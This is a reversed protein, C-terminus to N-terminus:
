NMLTYIQYLHNIENSSLIFQSHSGSYMVDTATPSHGKYGLAHGLEHVVTKKTENETRPSTDEPRYIIYVNAYVMEKILKINEQYVAYGRESPLNTCLGTWSDPWITKTMDLYDDPTLGYVKIDANDKDETSFAINLVSSWQTKASNVGSEFYFSSSQERKEVYLTPPSSWYAVTDENSNWYQLVGLYNSVGNYIEWEDNYSADDTYTTQVTLNVGDGDTTTPTALVSYRWTSAKCILRYNGTSTEVIKWRSYDTVTDYQRVESVNSSNAGLYKGSNVNKIKFYGNGDLEFIWKAQEGTHFSWQQVIGGNAESASEVEMYKGTAVNQVFTTDGVIDPIVTYTTSQTHQVTSSSGLRTQIEMEYDGCKHATITALYNNAQWDATAVSSYPSKIALYPTNANIVTSWTKLWITGTNGKVLGDGMGATRYIHYGYKENGTYKTFRWKGRTGAATQTMLTLQAAEANTDGSATSNPAAIVESSGYPKITCLSGAMVITYTRGLANADDTNIFGTIMEDENIDTDPCISLRNNTMARIIYRNTEGIRTVKFLSARSFNTLPTNSGYNQQVVRFGSDVSGSEVSMYYNDNGVNEIAYVGSQLFGTELELGDPDVSGGIDTMPPATMPPATMATNEIEYEYYLVETEMETEDAAVEASEEYESQDATSQSDIVTEDTPIDDTPPENEAAYVSLTGFSLLMVAALIALYFSLVRTSKRHKM